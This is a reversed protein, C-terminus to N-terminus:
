PHAGSNRTRTPHEMTKSYVFSLEHQRHLGAKGIKLVNRRYKLLVMNPM